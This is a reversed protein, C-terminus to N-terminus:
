LEISIKSPYGQVNLELRYFERDRILSGSYGSTSLSFLLQSSGVAELTVDGITVKCQEGDVRVERSNLADTILVQKTQKMVKITLHRIGFRVVGGELQEVNTESPLGNMAVQSVTKTKSDDTLTIRPEMVETTPRDRPAQPPKLSMSHPSISWERAKKVLEAQIKSAKDTQARKRFFDEQKRKTAIWREKAFRSLEREPYTIFQEYFALSEIPSGIRELAIGVQQM